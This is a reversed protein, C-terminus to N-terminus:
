MCLSFTHWPSRLASFTSSLVRGLLLPCSSAETLPALLLLPPPWFSQVMSHRSHLVGLPLLVHVHPRERRM